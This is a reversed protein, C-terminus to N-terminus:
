IICASYIGDISWKYEMCEMPEHNWIGVNTAYTEMKLGVYDTMYGM